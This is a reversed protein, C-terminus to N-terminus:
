ARSHQLLDEPEQAVRALRGDQGHRARIGLLVNRGQDLGEPLVGGEAFQGVKYEDHHALAQRCAAGSLTIHISVATRQM